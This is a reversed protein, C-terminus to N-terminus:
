MEKAGDALQMYDPTYGADYQNKQVTYSGQLEIVNRQEEM